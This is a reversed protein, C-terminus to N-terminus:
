YVLRYFDYPLLGYGVWWCILLFYFTIVRIIELVLSLLGSVVVFAMMLDIVLLFWAVLM